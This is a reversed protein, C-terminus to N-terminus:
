SDVSGVTDPVSWQLAISENPSTERTSRHHYHSSKHTHTHAHALRGTSIQLMVIPVKCTLIIMLFSCYRQELSTCINVSLVTFTLSWHFVASLLELGSQPVICGFGLTLNPTSIESTSTAWIFASTTDNLSLSYLSFLCHSSDSM